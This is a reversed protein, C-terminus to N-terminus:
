TVWFVVPITIKEAVYLRLDLTQVSLAKRESGIDEWFHLYKVVIVRIKETIM